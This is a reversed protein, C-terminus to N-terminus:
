KKVEVSEIEFDDEEDWGEKWSFNDWDMEDIISRAGEKDAAEIEVIATDKRSVVRSVEVTFKNTEGNGRLGFTPEYKRILRTAEGFPKTIADKMINPPIRGFSPHQLNTM